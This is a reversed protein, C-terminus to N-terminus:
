PGVGFDNAVCLGTPYPRLGASERFPPFRMLVLGPESPFAGVGLERASAPEPHRSARHVALSPQARPRQHARCKYRTPQAQARPRPATVLAEVLLAGHTTGRMDGVAEAIQAHMSLNGPPRCAGPRPVRPTWWPSSLTRTATSPADEFTAAEGDHPPLHPTPGEHQPQHTLPYVSANAVPTAPGRPGEPRQSDGNGPGSEVEAAPAVVLGGFSWRGAHWAM